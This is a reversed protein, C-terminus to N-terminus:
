AYVWSGISAFFAHVATGLHQMGIGGRFAVDYAVLVLVIAFLGKM